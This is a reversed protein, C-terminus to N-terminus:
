GGSSPYTSMPEPTAAPAASAAPMAAASPINGCAVYTVLDSTSKHANIAFGGTQLTALPVNVTTASQGDAVTSLPYAPKPNLKACTGQHIHAPEQSGAPMGNLAIVVQTKDGSATLTATGTQNSGSQAAIPVVVAGPPPAANSTPAALSALRPMAAFVFAMLVIAIISRKM